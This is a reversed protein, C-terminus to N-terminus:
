RRGAVEESLMSAAADIALTIRSGDRRRLSVTGGGEEKAGVAV